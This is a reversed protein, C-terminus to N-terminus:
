RGEMREPVVIPAFTDPDFLPSARRGGCLTDAVVRRAIRAIAIPMHRAPAHPQGTASTAWVSCVPSGIFARAQPSFVAAVISLYPVKGTAHTSWLPTDCCGAVWRLTPKDTMHLARLRDNGSVIRLAGARAHYLTTGGADDLAKDANAHALAFHRCDACYCILCEGKAAQVDLTAQVHGCACAIAAKTM